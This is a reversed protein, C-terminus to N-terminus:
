EPTPTSTHSQAGTGISWPFTLACRLLVLHPRNISTGMINVAYLAADVPDMPPPPHDLEGPEPELQLAQLAALYDAEGLVARHQRLIRLIEPTNM